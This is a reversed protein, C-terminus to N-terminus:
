DDQPRYKINLVRKFIEPQAPKPLPSSKRIAREVAADLAPNGSSRVLKVELVDGSPLQTVDFRAEPNGQIGPPLAVNPRIKRIIKDTYEALGRKNEASAQEAQLQERLREQAEARARQDQAAKQEAKQQQLQKQERALEDSYSTRREPEAKRPEEKRPAEKAKPEEKKPVEKAKPEEKRPPEKIKAEEKKPPEKPKRDEKLPIDPKMPPRPEAKPEPRPLAKVVPKPEPPPQPVPMPKPIPKPEPKTEPRPQPERRPEPKPEPIADPQSVVTPAPAARWVEVEVATPPKSKWQVGLFLAGILLVHVVASLALSPWKAPDEQPPRPLIDVAEM